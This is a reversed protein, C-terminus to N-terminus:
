FFRICNKKQKRLQFKKILNNWHILM